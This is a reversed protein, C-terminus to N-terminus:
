LTLTESLLICTKLDWCAEQIKGRIFLLFMGKDFGEQISCTDTNRTLTEKKM